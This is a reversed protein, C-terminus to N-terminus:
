GSIARGIIYGLCTVLLTIVLTLLVYTLATISHGSRLLNLAEFSFASFTTFGGLFGVVVFLRAKESIDGSIILLAALLGIIFCGIVNVTFTGLPFSSSSAVRDSMWLSLTYRFASGAFGGIGVLLIQM